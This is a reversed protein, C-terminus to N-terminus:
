ELKVSKSLPNSLSGNVNKYICNDLTITTGPGSRDYYKYLTSTDSAKTSTVNNFGFGAFYITGSVFNLTKLKEVELVPQSKFQVKDKPKNFNYPIEKIEKTVGKSNVFRLYDFTVIAGNRSSDIMKMLANLDSGSCSFSKVYQASNGSFYVLANYIGTEKTTDIHTQVTVKNKQGAKKTQSFTLSSVLLLLVTLSSISFHKLYKM